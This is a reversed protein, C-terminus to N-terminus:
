DKSPKVTVIVYGKTIIGWKYTVTVPVYLYFEGNINAGNNKYTLKGQPYNAPDSNDINIEITSPLTKWIAVVGPEGKAKIQELTLDDNLGAM